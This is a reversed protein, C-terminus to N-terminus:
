EAAPASEEAADPEDLTTTVTTETEVESSTEMPAPQQAAPSLPAVDVVQRTSPRYLVARMSSPFIVVQDGNEANEFFPQGQLQDKDSVTAIIPSEEDPVVM